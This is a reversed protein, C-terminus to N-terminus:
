NTSCLNSKSKYIRIGDIVQVDVKYVYFLTDLYSSFEKAKDEPLYLLRDIINQIIENRDEVSQLNM